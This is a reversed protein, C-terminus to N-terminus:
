AAITDSDAPTVSILEMSLVIPIDEGFGFGLRQFNEHAMELEEAKFRAVARARARLNGLTDRDEASPGEVHMVALRNAGRLSLAGVVWHQRDGVRRVRWSVFRLTKGIRLELRCGAPDIPDFIFKGGIEGTEGGPLRQADQLTIFSTAPDIGYYRRIALPGQDGAHQVYQPSAATTQTRSQIFTAKM